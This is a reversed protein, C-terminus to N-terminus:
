QVLHALKHDDWAITKGWFQAVNHATVDIPRSGM